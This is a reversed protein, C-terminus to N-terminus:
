LVPQQARGTHNSVGQHVRRHRDAAAGGPGGLGQDPCLRLGLCLKEEGTEAQHLVRREAVAPREQAAQGTGLAVGAALDPAVRKHNVKWGVIDNTLAQKDDQIVPERHQTSRSQDLVKCARRESVGLVSRVHDVCRRRRITSM